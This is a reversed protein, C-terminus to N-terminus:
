GFPNKDLLGKILRPSQPIYGTGIEYRLMHVPVGFAIAAKEKEAQIQLETYHDSQYYQHPLAQFDDICGDVTCIPWNCPTFGQSKDHCDKVLARQEEYEQIGDIISGREM